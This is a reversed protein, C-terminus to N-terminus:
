SAVGGMWRLERALRKAGAREMGAGVFVESAEDLTPADLAARTERALSDHQSAPYDGIPDGFLRGHAVSFLARERPLDTGRWRWAEVVLAAADRLSRARGIDGLRFASWGRGERSIVGVRRQVGADDEVLVGCRDGRDLSGSAVVCFGLDRRV